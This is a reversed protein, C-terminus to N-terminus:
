NVKKKTTAHFTPQLLLDYFNNICSVDLVKHSDSTNLLKKQKTPRKTSKKDLVSTVVQILIHSLLEREPPGSIQVTQDCFQLKQSVVAGLLHVKYPIVFIYLAKLESFLLYLSNIMM